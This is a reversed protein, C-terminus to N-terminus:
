EGAAAQGKEPVPKAAAAAHDKGSLPKPPKAAKLEVRAHKAAPKKDKNSQVHTELPKATDGAEQKATVTKNKPKHAVLKPAHRGKIPLATPDPALPTKVTPLTAAYASATEPTPETGVASHAPRAQAVPGIYGPAPGIYVPVPTFNPAPVLDLRTMVPTPHFMPNPSFLSAQPAPSNTAAGTEAVFPATLQAIEANFQVIAKGRSRCIQDRMDPANNGASAGLNALTAIPHDVGGFGRDFLAAVKATRLAVSPAGM